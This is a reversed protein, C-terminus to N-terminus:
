FALSVSAILFRVFICVFLLGVLVGLVDRSRIIRPMQLLIAMGLGGFALAGGIGIIPRLTVPFPKGVSSADPLWLLLAIDGLMVGVFLFAAPLREKSKYWGPSMVNGLLFAISVIMALALVTGFLVKLAAEPQGSLALIVVVTLTLALGAIIWPRWRKEIRQGRM